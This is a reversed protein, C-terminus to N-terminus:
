RITDDPAGEEYLTLEYKLGLMRALKTFKKWSLNNKTELMRRDNRMDVMSSGYMNRFIDQTLGKRKVWTKIPIMLEDDGPNIPFELPDGGDQNVTFNDDERSLLLKRKKISNDKPKVFIKGKYIYICNVNPVHRSTDYEGIFIYYKDQIKVKDYIRLVIDGSRLPIRWYENRDVRM